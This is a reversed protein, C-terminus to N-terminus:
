LFTFYFMFRMTIVAVRTCLSLWLPPPRQLYCLIQAGPWRSILCVKQERDAEGVKGGPLVIQGLPQASSLCEPPVVPLATPWLSVSAPQAIRGTCRCMVCMCTNYSTSWAGAHPKMVPHSVLASHQVAPDCPVLIGGRLSSRTFSCLSLPCCPWSWHSASPTLLHPVYSLVAPASLAACGPPFPRPFRGWKM